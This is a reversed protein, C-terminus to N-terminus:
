VQPKAFDAIRANTVRLLDSPSVAFVHRPTGAAAWIVPFDLLRPDAVIPLPAIHGLPAVGGIAFGTVRRVTDPDASEVPEGAVTSALELDVRNGGATLFLLLRGTHQGKLIISKAIQDLVCGAARAAQEATRTEADMEIPSVSLGAASLADVVRQLSRSM